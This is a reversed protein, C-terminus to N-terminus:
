SKKEPMMSREVEAASHSTFNTIKQCMRGVPVFTIPLFYQEFCSNLNLKLFMAERLGVLVVPPTKLLVPSTASSKICIELMSLWAALEEKARGESRLQRSWRGYKEQRAGIFTWWDSGEIRLDTFKSELRDCLHNMLLEWASRDHHNHVLVHSILFMAFIHLECEVNKAHWDSILPRNTSVDFNLNKSVLEASM